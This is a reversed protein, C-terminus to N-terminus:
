GGAMSLRFAVMQEGNRVLLVDGVLVPHNWTKGEIAPFRALETFRDPTARVLALEGEEALVLLLDQDALLVLQGNGYRGGKWKRAGDKLDICSLISGDFGYAHGNHVVFDNFYPKLGNSTWREEVTWGGSGNGPAHALALRRIGSSDSVSILVDGEATLNPQVIPYGKWAHEWLLAGDALAVSTAGAASLLLVQPVGDIIVLRPSSYSPGRSPGLWRSAGTVRDFSALRGSVAVIVLDGVVLPSSAFGWQPTKMAAEKAANRSWLVAGSDADLANVIGTAGFTYVRGNSLTPTGRPGPGGNSEWFRAADRHAWVPDGTTLKYCAVVEDPGRQEQTYILNGRVAFSSWGPGVPRRWIAVPPSATWDTKIQVGAISSDRHPGRFGPWAAEAETRDPAVVALTLPLAAPKKGSKAVSEVIAPKEPAPTEAIPKGPPPAPPLDGSQAVLREEATQTWRWHLDNRLDATFGGTRVLAWVGCALLVAVVMTSRRLGDSLNRTAVAWVVLALCLGPIALIYLLMGQAGTAVSVDVISKTAFLGVIMLVIAGLRESWAARSFFLWWLIIALAGGFVGGLLGYLLADPVIGPLVFRLLWQLIVIVVGPWLRLQRSDTPRPVAMITM